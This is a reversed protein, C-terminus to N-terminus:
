RLGMCNGVHMLLRDVDRAVPCRVCATVRSLCVSCTQLHNLVEMLSAQFRITKTASQPHSTVARPEM